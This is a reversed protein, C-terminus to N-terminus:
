NPIGLNKNCHSELEEVPQAPEAVFSMVWGVRPTFAYLVQGRYWSTMCSLHHSFHLTRLLLCPLWPRQEKGVEVSHSTVVNERLQFFSFSAQQRFGHWASVLLSPM